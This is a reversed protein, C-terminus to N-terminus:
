PLRASSTAARVTLLIRRSVPSVLDCRDRGFFDGPRDLVSFDRAPLERVFDRVGEGDRDRRGDAVEFVRARRRADPDRRVEVPRPNAPM